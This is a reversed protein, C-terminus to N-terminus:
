SQRTKQDCLLKMMESRFSVDDPGHYPLASAAKLASSTIAASVRSGGLRLGSSRILEARQTVV